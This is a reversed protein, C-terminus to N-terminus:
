KNKEVKQGNIHRLYDTIMGGLQRKIMREYQADFGMALDEEDNNV